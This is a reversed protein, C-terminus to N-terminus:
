AKNCVPVQDRLGKALQDACSTGKGECDVGRLLEVVKDVPMGKLLRAMAKANGDCGGEFQVRAVVGDEVEVDIRDACVSEPIIVIREM